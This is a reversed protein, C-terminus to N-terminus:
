WYIPACLLVFLEVRLKSQFPVLDKYEVHSVPLVSPQKSRPFIQQSLNLRVKSIVWLHRVDLSDRLRTFECLFFRLKFLDAVVEQTQFPSQRSPVM